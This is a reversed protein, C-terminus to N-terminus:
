WSFAMVDDPAKRQLYGNLDGDAMVSMWMRKGQRSFLIELDSVLTLSWIGLQHLTGALKHTVQVWRLYFEPCYFQLHSARLSDTAGCWHGSQGEGAVEVQMGLARLLMLKKFSSTVIAGGEFAKVQDYASRRADWGALGAAARHRIAENYIQDLTEDLAVVVKGGVSFVPGPVLEKPLFFEGEKSAELQATAQEDALRNCTLCLSQWGATM